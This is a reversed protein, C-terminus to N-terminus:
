ISDRLVLSMQHRKATDDDAAAILKLEKGVTVCICLKGTDITNRKTKHNLKSNTNHKKKRTRNLTCKYM